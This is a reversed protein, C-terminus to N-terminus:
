GRRDKCVLRGRQLRLWRQAITILLSDGAERGFADNVIKLGNM